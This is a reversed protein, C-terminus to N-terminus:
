NAAKQNSAIAKQNDAYKFAEEWTTGTGKIDFVQGLQPRLKVMGVRCQIDKNENANAHRHGKLNRAVKEVRVDKGWRDKAEQLAQSETMM